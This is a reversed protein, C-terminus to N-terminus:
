RQPRSMEPVRLLAPPDATHEGDGGAVGRGHIVWREVAVAFDGGPGLGTGSSGDTPALIIREPIDDDFM